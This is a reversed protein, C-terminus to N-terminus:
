WFCNFGPRDFRRRGGKIKGKGKAGSFLLLLFVIAIIVSGVIILSIGLGYLTELNMLVAFSRSVHKFSALLSKFFKASVM